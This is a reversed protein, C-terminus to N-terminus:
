FQFTIGELGIADLNDRKFSRQAIKIDAGAADNLIFEIAEITEAKTVEFEITEQNKYEVNAYWPGVDNAETYKIDDTYSIKRNMM